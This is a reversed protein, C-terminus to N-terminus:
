KPKRDVVKAGMITLDRWATEGVIPGEGAIRVTRGAHRALQAENEPFLGIERQKEHRDGEEDLVWVLKPLRLVFARSWSRNPHQHRLSVLVGDRVADGPLCPGQAAAPTALLLAFLVVPRIMEIEVQESIGACGAGIQRRRPPRSPEFAARRQLRQEIGRGDREPSGTRGTEWVKQLALPLKQSLSQSFGQCQRRVRMFKTIESKAPSNM